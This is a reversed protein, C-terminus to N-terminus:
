IVIGDGRAVYAAAVRYDGGQHVRMGTPDKEPEALDTNCHKNFGNWWDLHYESLAPLGERGMGKWYGSLILHSEIAAMTGHTWCPGGLQQKVPTAAELYRLDFAAPLPKDASGTQTSAPPTLLFALLVLPLANAAHKFRMLPVECFIPPSAVTHLESRYPISR